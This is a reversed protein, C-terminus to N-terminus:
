LMQNNQLSNKVKRDYCRSCKTLLRGPLCFWLFPWLSFNMHIEGMKTHIRTKKERPSCARNVYQVKTESFFFFWVLSLALVFLEHIEGKKTFEPTKKGQSFVSRNERTRKERKGGKSTM